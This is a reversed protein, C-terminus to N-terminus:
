EKRAQWKTWHSSFKGWERRVLDLGTVLMLALQITIPAIYGGFATSLSAKCKPNSAAYTNVQRTKIIRGKCTSKGHLWTSSSPAHPPSKSKGFWQPHIRSHKSEKKSGSDEAARKQETLIETLPHCLAEHHPILLDSSNMRLEQAHRLCNWELFICTDQPTGSKPKPQGWNVWQLYSLHPFCLLSFFLQKQRQLLSGM